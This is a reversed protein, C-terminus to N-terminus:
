HYDTLALAYLIYKMIRSAMEFMAELNRRAKTVKRIPTM